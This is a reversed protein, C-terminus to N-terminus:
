APQFPESGAASTRVRASPARRIIEAGGSSNSGVKGPSNAPSGGRWNAGKSSSIAASTRGAVQEYQVSVKGTGWLRKVSAEPGVVRERPYVGVESAPRPRLKLEHVEITEGPALAAKKPGHVGMADSRPGLPVPKGEADTVAPLNEVFYAWVYGFQVEEKGVNRVRVVLRVTEGHRYARKQGPHYGLGAQLGGVEEGWATFGEKDQEQEQQQPPNV